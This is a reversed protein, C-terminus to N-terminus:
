SEINQPSKPIDIQNFSNCFIYYSTKNPRGRTKKLFPRDSKNPSIEGWHCIVVQITRLETNKLSKAVDIKEFSYSFVYCSTEYPHGLSKKVFQRDSLNRSIAARHCFGAQM